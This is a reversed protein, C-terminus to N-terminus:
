EWLQVMWYRFYPSVKQYGEDILKFIFTSEHSTNENRLTDIWDAEADSQSLLAVM